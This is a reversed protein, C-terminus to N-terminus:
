AGAPAAKGKGKEAPEILVAPVTAALEKKAKYNKYTRVGFRVGEDVVVGLLTFGLAFAGKIM